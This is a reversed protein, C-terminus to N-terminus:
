QLTQCLPVFDICFFNSNCRKMHENQNRKMVCAEIRLSIITPNILSM